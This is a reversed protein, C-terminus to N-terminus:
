AARCRAVDAALPFSTRRPPPTLAIRCYTCAPSMSRFACARDARDHEALAFMQEVADVGKREAVIARLVHRSGVRSVRVSVLRRHGRLRM